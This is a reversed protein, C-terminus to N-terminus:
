SRWSAKVSSICEDFGQDDINVGQSHLESIANDQFFSMFIKLLSIMSDPAFNRVVNAVSARLQSYLTISATISSTGQVYAAFINSVQESSLSTETSSVLHSILVARESQMAADDNLWWNGFLKDLDFDSEGINRIPPAEFSRLWYLEPLVCTRGASAVLFEEILEFLAFIKLDINFSARIANVFVESRTVAFIHAPTYDSFHSILREYPEKSSLTRNYLKPYQRTFRLNSGFRRFGIARGMCAVYDPNSDLFDVCTGLASPIFYEDDCLLCVYPSEIGESIKLIRSAFSTRSHLYHINSYKSWDIGLPAISGDAYRVSIDKYNSWFKASRALYHHREYTPCLLTLRPLRAM